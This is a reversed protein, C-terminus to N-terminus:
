QSCQHHRIIILRKKYGNGVVSYIKIIRVLQQKHARHTTQTKGVRRGTGRHVVPVREEGTLSNIDLKTPDKCRHRRQKPREVFGHLLGAGSQLTPSFLCSQHSLLILPNSVREFFLLENLFDNVSFIVSICVTLCPFLCIFRGSKCSHVHPPGHQIGPETEAVRDSRQEGGRQRHRHDRASTADPHPHAYLLLVAHPPRRTARFSLPVALLHLLFRLLPQNGGGPGAPPLVCM